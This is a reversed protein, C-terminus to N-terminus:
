NKQKESRNKELKTQGGGREWNVRRKPQNNGTGKIKERDGNNCGGGGDKARWVNQNKSTNKESGHGREGLPGVRTILKKTDRCGKGGKAKTNEKKKEKM